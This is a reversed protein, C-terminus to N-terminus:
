GPAPARAPLARTQLQLLTDFAAIQSATLDSPSVSTACTFDAVLAPVPQPPQTGITVSMTLSSSTLAPMATVSWRHSCKGYLRWSSNSRTRIEPRRDNPWNNASCPRPRPQSTQLGATAEISADSPLPCM